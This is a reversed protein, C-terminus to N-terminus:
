TTCPATDLTLLTGTPGRQKIKLPGDEVQIRNRRIADLIQNFTDGKLLIVSKPDVNSPLGDHDGTEAM